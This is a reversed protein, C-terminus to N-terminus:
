EEEPDIIGKSVLYDSYDKKSMPCNYFDLMDSNDDIYLQRKRKNFLHSSFNKEGHSTYTHIHTIQGKWVFHYYKHHSEEEIFGKKKLRKQFQKTKYDPM